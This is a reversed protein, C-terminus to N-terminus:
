QWRAKGKKVQEEAGYEAPIIDGPLFEVPDGNEDPFVLVRMAIADGKPVAGVAWERLKIVTAAGIGELKVLQEDSAARVSFKDVIRAKELSAVQKKDLFAPYEPTVEEVEEVVEEIQLKGIETM